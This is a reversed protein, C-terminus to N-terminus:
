YNDSDLIGYTTSKIISNHEKIRKWKEVKGSGLKFLDIM